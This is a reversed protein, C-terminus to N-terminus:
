SLSFLTSTHDFGRKLYSCFVVPIFWTTWPDNGKIMNRQTRGVTVPKSQSTFMPFFTWGKFFELCSRLRFWNPSFSSSLFLSFLHYWSCYVALPCSSPPRSEPLCVCPCCVIGCHYVKCLTQQLEKLFMWVSHFIDAKKREGRYIVACILLLFGM